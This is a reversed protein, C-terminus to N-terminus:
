ITSDRDVSSRSSGHRTSRMPLPARPFRPVVVLLPHRAPHEVGLGPRERQTPSPHAAPVVVATTGRVHRSFCTTTHTDGAPPHKSVLSRFSSIRSPNPRAHSVHVPKASRANPQREETRQWKECATANPLMSLTTCALCLQWPILIEGGVACARGRSIPRRKRELDSPRAGRIIDAREGGGSPTHRAVVM